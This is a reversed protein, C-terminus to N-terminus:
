SNAVTVPENALAATLIDRAGAKTRWARGPADHPLDRTAERVTAAHEREIREVTAAVDFYTRAERDRLRHALREEARRERHQSTRAAIRAAFAVPFAPCNGQLAREYLRGIADGVAHPDLRSTQAGRVLHMARVTVAATLAPLTREDCMPVLLFAWADSRRAYAAALAKRREKPDAVARAAAVRAPDIPGLMEASAAAANYDRLAAGNVDSPRAKRPAKRRVPAPMDGYGRGVHEIRDPDIGAAIAEARRAKRVDSPLRSSAPYTEQM